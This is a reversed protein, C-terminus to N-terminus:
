DAPRIALVGLFIAACNARKYVTQMFRVAESLTVPSQCNLRRVHALLCILQLNDAFTENISDM